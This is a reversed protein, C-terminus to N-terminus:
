PHLELYKVESAAALYGRITGPTHVGNDALSCVIYMPCSINDIDPVLTKWFENFHPYLECAKELHIIPNGKENGYPRYKTDLLTMFNPHPIGGKFALERYPNTYGDQVLIGSLHPPQFSAVM